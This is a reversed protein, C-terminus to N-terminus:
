VVDVIAMTNHAGNKLVYQVNNVVQFFELQLIFLDTGTGTPTGTPTLTVNNSTANIPLNVANSVFVQSVGTAFNVRAWCGRITVHTAGQPYEIEDIPILGNITIVGTSANVAFANFLISELIARDNFNFGKLKIKAAPLAIAVGVNRSGRVSTPDMNKIQSMLKTLRSTMRNDKSNQIMSFLALRVQKGAKASAGFEAGNERTRVFAPDSAIRKADVGGKERAMHGDQSQYFSLDGIKGKLKIIGKQKAM